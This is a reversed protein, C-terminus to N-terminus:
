PLTGPLTEAFRKLWALEPSTPDGNLWSEGAQGLTDGAQQVEGKGAQVRGLWFTDWPSARQMLRSHLMEEAKDLQEARLYAELLTDEFM